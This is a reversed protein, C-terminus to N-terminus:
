FESVLNWSWDVMAHKWGSTSCITWTTSPLDDPDYEAEQDCASLYITISSRAQVLVTQTFVECTAIGIM